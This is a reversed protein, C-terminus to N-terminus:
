VTYMNVIALSAYKRMIVCVTLALLCFHKFYNIILIELAFFFDVSVLEAYRFLLAAFFLNIM